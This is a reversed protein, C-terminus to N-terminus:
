NETEDKYYIENLRESKEIILRKISDQTYAHAILLGEFASYLDELTNDTYGNEWTTITSGVQITIKTKKEISCM